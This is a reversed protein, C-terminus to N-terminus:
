SNDPGGGAVAAGGMEGGEEAEGEDEDEEEDDDDEDDDDDDSDDFEFPELDEDDEEIFVAENILVSGLQFVAERLAALRRREDDRYLKAEVELRRAEMLRNQEERARAEEAEVRAQEAAEDQATEASLLNEEDKNIAAEDDVFLTADYNFLEKGSLVSLAKGKGKKTAEAKM